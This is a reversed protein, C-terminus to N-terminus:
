KWVCITMKPHKKCLQLWAELFRIAGKYDGWKNPPNLPIYESENAEMHNLGRELTEIYDEALDGDSNYLANYVGAKTWMPTVNHTINLDGLCLRYPESGGTDVDMQLWIDLSM